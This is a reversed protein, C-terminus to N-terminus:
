SEPKPAPQDVPPAGNGPRRPTWLSKVPIETRVQCEFKVVLKLVPSPDDLRALDPMRDRIKIFAAVQESQLRNRAHLDEEIQHLTSHMVAYESWLKSYREIFSPFGLFPKLTALVVSGGRLPPVLRAQQASQL